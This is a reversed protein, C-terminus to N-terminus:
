GCHKGTGVRRRAVVAYEIGGVLSGSRQPYGVSRRYRSANRTPNESTTGHKQRSRRHNYHIRNGLGVSQQITFRGRALYCRPMDFGQSVTGRESYSCCMLETSTWCNPARESRNASTIPRQRGDDTAIRPIAPPFPSSWISLLM